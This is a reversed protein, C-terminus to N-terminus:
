ALVSRFAAEKLLKGEGPSMQGDYSINRPDMGFIRAFIVWAALTSGALSPHFLDPRYVDIDTHRYIHLMADGVPAVDAKTQAAIFRYAQRLRDAMIEPTGGCSPLKFYGEKYGWTQYLLIKAGTPRILATLERVSHYFCLPEKAPLGSQEQLIIIDYQNESLKQRLLAGFADKENAFQSLFWGGKVVADVQVEVGAAACIAPFIETPMDNYYTFSNGVFLIKKM